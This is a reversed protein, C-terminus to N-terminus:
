GTARGPRLGGCRAGFAHRPDGGRGWATESSNRFLNLSRSPTERPERDAREASSWSRTGVLARAIAVRQWSAARCNWLAMSQERGSLGVAAIGSRLRLLLAIGRLLLPLAVNQEVTLHPLFQFAQFVFGFKERRLLTL